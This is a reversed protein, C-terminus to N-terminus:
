RAAAHHELDELLEPRILFHFLLGVAIVLLPPEVALWWFSEGHPHLLTIRYPQAIAWVIGALATMPGLASVVRAARTRQVPVELETVLEASL